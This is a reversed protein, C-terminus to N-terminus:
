CATQIKMQHEASGPAAPDYFYVKVNTDVTFSKHNAM